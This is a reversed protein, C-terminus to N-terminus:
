KIYKSEACGEAGAKEEVGCIVIGQPPAERLEKQTRICMSM